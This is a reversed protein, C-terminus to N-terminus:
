EIMSRRTSLAKSLRLSSTAFSVFASISLATAHLAGLSLAKLILMDLTGQLLDAKPRTLSRELRRQKNTV